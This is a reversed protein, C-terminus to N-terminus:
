KKAEKKRAKYQRYEFASKYAISLLLSIITLMLIIPPALANIKETLNLGYYGISFSVGLTDLAILIKGTYTQEIQLQKVIQEFKELVDM